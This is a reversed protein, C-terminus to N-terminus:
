CPTTTATFLKASASKADWLDRFRLLMSPWYWSTTTGWSTPSSTDIYKQKRRYIDSLRQQGPLWFDNDLGQAFIAHRVEASELMRHYAM